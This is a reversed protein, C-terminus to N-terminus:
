NSEQFKTVVREVSLTPDLSMETIDNVVVIVYNQTRNIERTGSQLSKYHM